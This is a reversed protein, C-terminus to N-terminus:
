GCLGAPVAASPPRERLGGGQVTWSTERAQLSWGHVGPGERGTGLGAMWLQTMSRPSLARGEGRCPVGSHATGVM